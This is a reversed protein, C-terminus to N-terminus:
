YIWIWQFKLDDNKEPIVELEIEYFGSVPFNIKELYTSQYNDIIWNQNPEGVTKGTQKITHPLQNKAAKLVLRSNGKENQYSYSVDIKKEGPTDIYIEWKFTIASDILIHAPITGGRDKKNIVPKQDAVHMNQPTLSYGGDTTKASLGNRVEPKKDYEIVVVSIYANPQMAPLEIETFAGSHTFSLPAKQKDTLVYIQKPYDTVGTLFLKRNLPWNYVHLFLKFNSNSNKSTIVGWDHLNKDLEFAETGYVSEGNIELWKGMELMRQSIEFPVEGNARPGINLMLNGNLSANNILSKLLTTTSKWESDTAHFGWSHAVTAPSQWPFDEKRTGIQNDGLTKFDIDPDEEISLGLRSNVLCDPQLERILTKLQLLQKKSVITHSHHIWMDFWIMGIEGYNTLLERMQPIVKEQWYIDYNEPTIGYIERTHDWGYQHEWDVWHSYYLGLKLGHKKCADSLERVIDRKPSTFNGIDYDSTESDWLGFGDHHKATLTVYKMGSNKALIVWKEPDIEDWNFRQLLTLYEEKEIRNRYQLWEAYDNDNRLKEGKWYGEAGSYVGWHIFMGFRADTFWRARQNTQKQGFSHLGLVLLVIFLFNKKM